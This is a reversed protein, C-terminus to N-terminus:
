QFHRALSKKIKVQEGLVMRCHDDRIPLTVWIGRALDFVEGRAGRRINELLTDARVIDLARGMEITENQINNSDVIGRANCQELFTSSSVIFAGYQQRLQEVEQVAQAIASLPLLCVVVTLFALPARFSFGFRRNMAM